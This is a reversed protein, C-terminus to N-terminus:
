NVNIYSKLEYIRNHGLQESVFQAHDRLMERGNTAYTELGSELQNQHLLDFRRGSEEIENLKENSYFQRCEVHVRVNNSIRSFLHDDRNYQAIFEAKSPLEDVKQIYQGYLARIDNQYSELAEATRFRGGKGIITVYLRNDKEYLSQASVAYRDNQRNPVLESRRLGFTKGFDIIKIHNENYNILSSQGRNNTIDAKNRAPLNFEKKNIGENKAWEGSGIKVHNVMTMDAEITRTSYGQEKQNTLYEGAIDRSIDSINKIEPHNSRLWQGFKKSRSIHTKLSSRSYIKNHHAYEKTLEKENHRSTGKGKYFQEYLATKLQHTINEKKTAM